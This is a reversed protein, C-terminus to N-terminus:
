LTAGESKWVRIVSQRGRYHFASNGVCCGKVIVWFAIVNRAHKEICSLSLRNFHFYYQSFYHPHSLISTYGNRHTSSDRMCVNKCNQPRIRNGWASQFVTHVVEQRVSDSWGSSPSLARLRANVTANCIPLLILHVNAAIDREMNWTTYLFVVLM